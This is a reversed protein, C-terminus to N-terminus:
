ITLAKTIFINFYYEIPYNKGPNLDDGSYPTIGATGLRYMELHNKRFFSFLEEFSTNAKQLGYPWLEMIIKIDPSAAITQKMGSLASMEFGQIDLKIFDVKFKGGIYDDISIAPISLEKEFNEVKYTRHDVNLSKSTYLTITKTSEAVAKNEGFINKIGKTNKLFYTFNTADPEFSYVEGGTGTLEALIRSYFGINAGIDLITDGKRITCKLFEIEEADQRRKFRPYLTNYLPFCNRFLFNGLAISFNQTMKNKNIMSALVESSARL